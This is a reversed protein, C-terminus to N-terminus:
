QLKAALKELALGRDTAHTLVIRLWRVVLLDLLKVRVLRTLLGRRHAHLLQVFIVVWM